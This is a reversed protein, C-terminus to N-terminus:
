ADGSARGRGRLRAGLYISVGIAAAAVVGVAIVAWLLRRSGDETAGGRNVLGGTAATPATSTTALTALTTGSVSTTTISSTTPLGSTTSTEYAPVAQTIPPTGGAMMNAYTDFQPAPANGLDIESIYVDDSKTGPYFDVIYFTLNDTTHSIEFEQLSPEDRLTIEREGFGWNVAVTKPRAYEKFSTPSDNRGPLIRIERLDQNGRVWIRLWQGQVERAKASLGWATAPNGDVAEWGPPDNSETNPGLRESTEQAEAVAGFSAPLAAGGGYKFEESLRPAPFVLAIDDDATPELNEFVWQYTRDDLKVYSNPYAGGEDSMPAALVGGDEFSDAPRYRVIARGIPGNWYAGTHLWYSYGNKVAGALYSVTIMTEGHPFTATHLYYGVWSASLLPDKGKGFTVRLPKGDQWARLAVSAGRQADAVASADNVADAPMIDASAFGLQLTQPPGDNVFKFDVRYEAFNRYCIAQVTESDMRINSSAMPFVGQGTSVFVGSDNAMVPPSAAALVLATALMVALSTAM